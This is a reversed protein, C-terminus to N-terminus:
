PENIVIINHSDYHNQLDQLRQTLQTNFEDWKREQQVDLRIMNTHLDIFKAQLTHQSNKVDLLQKDLHILSEEMTNM